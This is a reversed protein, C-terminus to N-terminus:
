ETIIRGLKLVVGASLRINHQSQTTLSSPGFVTFLNHRTLVYDVSTNVAWRATLDLQAGGGLAAALSNQTGSIGPQVGVLHDIGFLAHVFGPRINVRPGGLFSYSGTTVANAGPFVGSFDVNNKYHGSASGEAAFWRNV